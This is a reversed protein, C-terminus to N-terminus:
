ECRVLHYFVQGARGLRLREAPRGLLRAFEDAAYEREAELYVRAPSALVPALAPLVREPWAMRFPPDLFAVDFRSGEERALALAALADGAHLRVRQASLRALTERIAALARPDREVLWVQAAGRSAAELGLAGSGAFLDLCTLGELNQGLWNFLTERVRDPSPRLGEVAPV